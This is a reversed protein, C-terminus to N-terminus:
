RAGRDPPPAFSFTVPAAEPAPKEDNRPLRVTPAPFTLGNVSVHVIQPRSFIFKLYKIDTHPVEQISLPEPHLPFWRRM